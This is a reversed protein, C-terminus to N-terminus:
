RNVLPWMVKLIDYPIEPFLKFDIKKLDIVPKVPETLLKNFEAVKKDYAEIDKKYKARLENYKAEYEEKDRIPNPYGNPVMRLGQGDPMSYLVVSGEEIECYESALKVQETQLEKIKESPEKLKNLIAIRKDIEMENVILEINFQNNGKEKIQVVASKLDFLQYNMLEFEKAEEVKKM